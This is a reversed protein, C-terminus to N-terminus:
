PLGLWLPVAPDAAPIGSNNITIDIYFIVSRWLVDSLGLIM